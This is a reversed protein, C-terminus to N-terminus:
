MQIVNFRAADWVTTMDVQVADRWPPRFLPLPIPIHTSAKRICKSMTLRCLRLLVSFVFHIKILVADSTHIECYICEPNSQQRNLWSNQCTLNFILWNFIHKYLLKIMFILTHAKMTRSYWPDIYIQKELQINEKLLERCNHVFVLGIHYIKVYIFQVKDGQM